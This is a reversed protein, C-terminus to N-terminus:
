DVIFLKVGNESQSRHSDTHDGVQYSMGEKLNFKRGDKLETMMEGEVCFIIYGKDCWHDALYNKSYEVMRVRITGLQKIKWIAYGNTGENRQIPVEEWNVVGFNIGNDITM